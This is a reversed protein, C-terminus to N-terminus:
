GHVGYREMMRESEVSSFIDILFLCFLASGQPYDKTLRSRQITPGQYVAATKATIYSITKYNGYREMSEWITCNKKWYDM